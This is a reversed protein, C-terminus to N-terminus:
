IHSMVQFFSALKNACNKVQIVRSRCCFALRTGECSPGFEQIWKIWGKSLGPKHASVSRSNSPFPLFGLANRPTICASKFAERNKLSLPQWWSTFVIITKRRGMCLFLTLLLPLAPPLLQRPPCVLQVPHSVFPGFLCWCVLASSTYTSGIHCSPAGFSCWKSKGCSISSM